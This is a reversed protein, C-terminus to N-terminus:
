KVNEANKYTELFMKGMVKAFAENRILLTANSRILGIMVEKNDHISIAVGNNKMVRIKRNVKLWEDINGRTEGDYRALVRIDVGRKIARETGGVWEPRFESNWKIDYSYEKSSMLESEIKHFGKKGYGLVIPNKESSDYIKKMKKVREKIMKLGAEKEKVIDLLETPSAPVFKKTKEPIVKVLGKQELSALVEYIRSYSVGSFKSIEGAGMKGINLLSLYTKSENTSLGLEKLEKM